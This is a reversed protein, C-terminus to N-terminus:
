VFGAWDNKWNTKGNKTSIKIKTQFSFPQNRLWKKMRNHLWIAVEICSLSRGEPSQTKNMHLLATRGTGPKSEVRYFQLKNFTYVTLPLPNSFM